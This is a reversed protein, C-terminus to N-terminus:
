SAGGCYVDFASDLKRIRKPHRLARLAKAEIQRVRERTVGLEKGVGELTLEQYGDLGFRMKMVVQQQEPLTHLQEMIADRSESNECEENPDKPPNLMRTGPSQLQKMSGAGFRLMHTELELDLQEESFLAEPHVDLVKAIALVTPIWEGNRKQKAAVCMNILNYVHNRTIGARDSLERISGIGRERMTLLIRNNRVRVTVEYDDLIDAM